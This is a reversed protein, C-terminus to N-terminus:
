QNIQQELLLLTQELEALKKNASNLLATQRDLEDKTVLDMKSITESLLAKVNKEIDAKPQKIADVFSAILLSFENPAKEDTFTDTNAQEFHTNDSHTM